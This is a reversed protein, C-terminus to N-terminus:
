IEEQILRSYADERVLTIRLFGSGFLILFKAVRKAAHCPVDRLTV